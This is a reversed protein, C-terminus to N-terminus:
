CAVSLEIGCKESVAKVAEHAPTDAYRKMIEQSLEEIIVEKSIGGNLRELMAFLETYSYKSLEDKLIAATDAEEEAVEYKRIIAYWDSLRTQEKEPLTEDELMVKLRTGINGAYDKDCTIKLMGHYLQAFMDKGECVGFISRMEALTDAGCSKLYDAVKEPSRTCDWRLEQIHDFVERASKGDSQKKYYQYLMERLQMPTSRKTFHLGVKEALDKIAKNRADLLADKLAEEDGISSEIRTMERRCDLEILTANFLKDEDYLPEVKLGLSLAFEKLEDSSLLGVFSMEQRPCRANLIANIKEPYRKTQFEEGEFQERIIWTLRDALAEETDGELSYPYPKGFIGEYVKVMGYKTLGKLITNREEDTKAIRLSTILLNVEKADNQLAPINNEEQQATTTEEVPDADAEAERYEIIDRALESALDAKLERNIPEGDYKEGTLQEYAEVMQAKTCTMLVAYLENATQATKLEVVVKSVDVKKAM